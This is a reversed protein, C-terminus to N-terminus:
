KVMQHTSNLRIKHEFPKARAQMYPIALSVKHSGEKNQKAVQRDNNKKKIIKWVKGKSELKKCLITM